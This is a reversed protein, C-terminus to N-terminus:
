YRHYKMVYFNIWKQDIKKNQVGQFCWFVVPKRTPTHTNKKKKPPPTAFHSFQGSIPLIGSYCRVASFVLKM